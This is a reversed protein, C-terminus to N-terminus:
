SRYFLCVTPFEYCGNTGLIWNGLIYDIYLPYPRYVFYESNQELFKLWIESDLTNSHKSPLFNYYLSYVTHQRAGAIFLEGHKLETTEDSSFRLDDSNVLQLGPYTNYGQPLVMFGSLITTYEWNEDVVSTIIDSLEASDNKSSLLITYYCGRVIMLACLICTVIRKRMNLDSFINGIYASVYLDTLFFFPYYTRSVLLMVFLNYIFFIVILAPIVLSFLRVQSNSTDANVLQHRICLTFFFPMLPFGSYFFSYTLISMFHTWVNSFSYSRQTIYAGVERTSARVIYMPDFAAKPSLIAFGIYLTSLMCLPLIIAKWLPVNKLLKIACFIPIIIFFILPYKTASLAGTMFFSLLIFRLGHAKSDLSHAALYIVAMLLFFTSADSTGYRSQTIHIISFIITCAYIVLSIYTQSLYRYLIVCGLVAGISFYFISAIRGCLQPSLSVESLRYVISSLIHFPLQLVIAGEPYEKEEEYIHSSGAVYSKLSQAANYFVHEDPHLEMNHSITTARTFIIILIMAITIFLFSKKKAQGM